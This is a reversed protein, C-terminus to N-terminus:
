AGVRAPFRQLFWPPAVLFHPNLMEERNYTLPADGSLVQGGAGEVIAQAAATDWEMTPGLRPYVDASGEAVRCFKLSSGAAVVDVPGLADIYEQTEPSMHSRSAVVRLPGDHPASVRIREQGVESFKLTEKGAGGVYTTNTAPVHVVGYTTRGNQILAINVTFEGNRQIFEKTGDLPDILWYAPWASRMEHPPVNGEESILPLGLYGELKSLVRQSAQDARTLPSNDEKTSVGFDGSDYVAMIARGANEALSVLHSRVDPTIM